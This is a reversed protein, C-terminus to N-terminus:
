FAGFITGFPEGFSRLHQWFAGWLGGFASGLGRQVGMHGLPAFDDITLENPPMMNSCKKMFFTGWVILANKFSINAVTPCKKLGGVKLEIRNKGIPVCTAM